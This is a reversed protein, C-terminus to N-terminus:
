WRRPHRRRPLEPPRRTDPYYTIHYFASAAAEAKKQKFYDKAKSINDKTEKVAKRGQWIAAALEHVQDEPLSVIHYALRLASKAGIGPLRSLQEILKSIQSSYYDM